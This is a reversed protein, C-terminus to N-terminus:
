QSQEIWALLQDLPLAGSIRAKEAGNRFLILTPIGRVSYAGGAAAYQETNLKAFTATSSLRRAAQQFVPAFVKCPGCWPAWFDVVVPLPSKQTLTKLGTDSVEAVGFHVPLRSKCNGCIPEKSASEEWSARNLKGCNSCPVYTYDMSSTYCPM